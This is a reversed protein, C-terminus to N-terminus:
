RTIPLVRRTFHGNISAQAPPDTEEVLITLFAGAPGELSVDLDNGVPLNTGLSVELFEVASNMQANDVVVAGNLKVTAATM